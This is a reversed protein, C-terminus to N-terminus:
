FEIEKQINLPFIKDKVSDVAQCYRCYECGDAQKPIEDSMLCDLAKGVFADVWDDERFHELITIHFNLKADFALRDKDANCYVFYGTSSVRFGNKEFLWQYIEMQRKYAEKYQGELTVDGRISTSKYDVIYLEGQSGLWLDDIAGSIILNREVDHYQIGKFNERWEDLCPHSFPLAEIGYARMLPHPEKKQRYLDFENKLLQDVATNLTFGPMRPREVGLRRDLYFCRPCQFFIELRSRSLRFPTKRDPRFLNRSRTLSYPKSM